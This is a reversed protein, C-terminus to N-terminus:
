TPRGLSELAAEIFPGVAEGATAADGDSAGAARHRHDIGAAIVAVKFYALALHADLDDVRASSATEYTTALGAEDPLRTSTWATPSGIILDFAPLRYACMMALDAIPDGLTALEWDVIAAVKVAQTDLRLLTNDIRFDGHVVSTARQAPLSEALLRVLRNVDRRVAAPQHSGVLPWQGSWRRLQREAYGSPRGFGDLGVGAYDAAHLCGLASVLAQVTEAVQTDTLGELDEASQITSGDVFRSVVYPGGLHSEDECLVVPAPVPVHTKSLASTVRYERAVDHASPTRGARPPTRLVWSSVGDSLGFTLNSRGGTILRASLSGATPEGAEVMAERVARLERDTLM